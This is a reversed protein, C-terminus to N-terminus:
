GKIIPLGKMARCTLYPLHPKKTEYKEHSILGNALKQISM